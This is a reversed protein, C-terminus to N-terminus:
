SRRKRLGLLALGMLGLGPPEPVLVAFEVDLVLEPYYDATAPDSTAYTTTVHSGTQSLHFIM